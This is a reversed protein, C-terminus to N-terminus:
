NNKCLAIKYENVRSIACRSDDFYYNLLTINILTNGAGTLYCIFIRERAMKGRKQPNRKKKAKNKM